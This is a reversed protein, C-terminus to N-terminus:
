DASPRAFAGLREKKSDMAKAQKRRPRNLEEESQGVRDMRMGLVACNATTLSVKRLLTNVRPCGDDDRVMGPIRQRKPPSLKLESSSVPASHAKV